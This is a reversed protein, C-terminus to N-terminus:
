HTRINSSLSSKSIGPKLIAFSLCLVIEAIGGGTCARRLLFRNTYPAMKSPWPRSGMQAVLGRERREDTANLLHAFFLAEDAGCMPGLTTIWSLSVNNVILTLTEGAHQRWLQAFGQEDVKRPEYWGPRRRIAHVETEANTIREWVRGTISYQDTLRRLCTEYDSRM